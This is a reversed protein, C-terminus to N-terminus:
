EKVTLSKTQITQASFYGLVQPTINTPPDSPTVGGGPGNYDQQMLTLWYTYVAKDICQMEVTVKDGPYIDIDDQILDFSVYNGDTFDDNNVFVRKVQVGNVYLLFKYQNVVGKPDSYHVTIKKKNNDSDFSNKAATISGLGVQKPMTSSATYNKGNTSVHMTYVSAATGTLQSISYVGAASETFTYTHGAQDNVTVQAGTVPPYTNTNSFAVNTTLKIYQPGKVNTIVGEIVLEGTESGLKLDIVKDCSSASLLIFFVLIYLPITKM